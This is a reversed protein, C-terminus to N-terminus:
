LLETISSLDLSSAVKEIDTDYSLQTIMPAHLIAQLEAINENLYNMPEICNAIWGICELGDALIAEYTLVAHNLCGLKM